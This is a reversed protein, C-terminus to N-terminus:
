FQQNCIKIWSHNQILLYFLELLLRSKLTFVRRQIMINTLNISSSCVGGATRTYSSNKCFNHTLYWQWSIDTLYHSFMGVHLFGSMIWLSQFCKHPGQLPIINAAHSTGKQSTQWKGSLPFGGWMDTISRVAPAFEINWVWEPTLCFYIYYWSWLAM